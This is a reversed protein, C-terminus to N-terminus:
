HQRLRPRRGRVATAVTACLAVGVLFVALSVYPNPRVTDGFLAFATLTLGSAALSTAIAVSALLRWLLAQVGDAPHSALYHQGLQRMNMVFQLEARVGERFDPQRLSEVRRAPGPARLAESAYEDFDEFEAADYTEAQVTETM